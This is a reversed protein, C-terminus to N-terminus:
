GFLKKMPGLNLKGPENKVIRTQRNAKQKASNDTFRGLKEQLSKAAETRSNKGLKDFNFKNFYLYSMLLQNNPDSSDAMLGTKGTKPDVETIYSYFDSKTKKTLQFGGIEDTKEIKEKLDNLIQQNKKIQEERAKKQSEVIAKQKEVQAQQLKKLASVSRKHLLGADEFSEIMDEIDEQSEGSAALQDRLLQKQIATNGEIDDSDISSYDPGSVMQVFNSPDGGNELFDLFQKAMPHKFSEKYKEIGKEITKSVMAQLAEPTNEMDEEYGDLIGEDAFHKGLVKFTQYEDQDSNSGGKPEVEEEEEEEEEDSDPQPKKTEDIIELPARKAEDELEKNNAAAQAAENALSKPDIVSGTSSLDMEFASGGDGSPILDNSSDDITINLGGRTEM